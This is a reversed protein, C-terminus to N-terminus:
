IDGEKFDYYFTSFIKPIQQPRLIVTHKAVSM